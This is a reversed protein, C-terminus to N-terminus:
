KCADLSMYCTSFHGDSLNLHFSTGPNSRRLESGYDWLENYQQVEDGYIQKLALSRARWLKTRAPTLNWDKKVTKAFNALSMKEDARFTEVYKEALWRSTYRKLVWEKQCNHTGSYTKIMFANAMSDFSAYMNWPCGAACHARVRRQDNRPM